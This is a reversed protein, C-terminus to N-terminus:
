FIAEKGDNSFLSGSENIVILMNMKYVFYIVSNVNSKVGDFFQKLLPDARHHLPRTQVSQKLLEPNAPESGLHLGVCWEDLWATATDWMCFLPLSGYM